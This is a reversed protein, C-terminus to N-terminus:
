HTCPDAFARELRGELGEIAKEKAQTVFTADETITFTPDQDMTDAMTQDLFDEETITMAEEDELERILVM